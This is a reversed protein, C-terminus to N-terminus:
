SNVVEDRFLQQILGHVNEISLLWPGPMGHWYGKPHAFTNRLPTLCELLIGCYRQPRSRRPTPPLV